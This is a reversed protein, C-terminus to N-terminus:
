LSPKRMFYGTFISVDNYFSVSSETESNKLDLIFSILRYRFHMKYESLM